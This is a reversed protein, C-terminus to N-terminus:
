SFTAVKSERNLAMSQADGSSGCRSHMRVGRRLTLKDDVIM